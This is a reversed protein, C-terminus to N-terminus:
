GFVVARAIDNEQKHYRDQQMTNVIGDQKYCGRQRAPDAYREYRDEADEAVLHPLTGALSDLRVVIGVQEIRELEEVSLNFVGVICLSLNLLFLLVFFHVAKKHQM